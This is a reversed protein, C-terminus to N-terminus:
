WSSNNDNDNYDPVTPKILRDFLNFNPLEPEVKKPKVVENEQQATEEANTKSVNPAVNEVDEEVESINEYKELTNKASEILNDIKENVEDNEDVYEEDLVDNFSTPKTQSDLYENVAEFIATASFYQKAFRSNEFDKPKILEENILSNNKETIKSNAVEIQKTELEQEESEEVENEEVEEDLDGTDYKKLQLLVSQAGLLTDIMEDSQESIIHLVNSKHKIDFNEDELQLAIENMISYATKINKILKSNTNLILRVADDKSKNNKNEVLKNEKKNQVSAGGLKQTNSPAFVSLSKPLPKKIKVSHNQGFKNFSDM